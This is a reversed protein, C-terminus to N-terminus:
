GAATQTFDHRQRPGRPKNPCRPIVLSFFSLLLFFIHAISRTSCDVWGPLISWRFIENWREDPYKSRRLIKPILFISKRYFYLIATSFHGLRCLADKSVYNSTWIVATSRWRKKKKCKTPKFPEWTGRWRAATTCREIIMYFPQLKSAQAAPRLSTFELSRMEKEVKM